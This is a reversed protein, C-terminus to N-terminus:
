RRRRRSKQTQRRRRRDLLEPMCAPRRRRHRQCPMGSKCGLRAQANMEYRLNSRAETAFPFLPVTRVKVDEKFSESADLSYLAPGFLNFRAASAVEGLEVVM